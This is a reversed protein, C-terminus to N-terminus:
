DEPICGNFTYHELADDFAKLVIDARSAEDTVFALESLLKHAWERREDDLWVRM